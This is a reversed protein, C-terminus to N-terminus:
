IVLTDLFLIAAVLSSMIAMTSWALGSTCIGDSTDAKPAGLSAMTSSSSATSSGTRSSTTFVSSSTSPSAYVFVDTTTTRTVPQIGFTTPATTSADTTVAGGGGGSGDYIGFAPQSANHTLGLPECQTGSACSQVISWEGSACRQFNTSMCFWAGEDACSSGPAQTDVQRHTLPSTINNTDFIFLNTLQHTSSSSPPTTLLIALAVFPLLLIGFVAKIM